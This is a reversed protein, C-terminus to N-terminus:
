QRRPSSRREARSQPKRCTDDPDHPDVAVGSLEELVNGPTRRRSITWELSSLERRFTCFTRASLEAAIYLDLNGELWLLSQASM